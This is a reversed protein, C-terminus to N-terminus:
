PIVLKKDGLLIYSVSCFDFFKLLYLGHSPRAKRRVRLTVYGAHAADAMLQVVKRHSAGVVCLGSVYTIEDGPSLHGDVAAAGGPVVHGV